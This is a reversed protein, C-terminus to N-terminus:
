FYLKHLGGDVVVEWAEKVEAITFVAGAESAKRYAEQESKARWFDHNVGHRNEYVILYLKSM